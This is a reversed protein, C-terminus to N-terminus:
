GTRQMILFHSLGFIRLSTEELLYCIRRLWPALRAHRSAIGDFGPYVYRHVLPTAPLGAFLGEVDQRRYARAHPVLRQRLASPLYNVLPFVGFHYNGGWYIGHTEFPYLRNPCYIVLCGGVRTTRFAEAVTRRDDAVHELVEHLFIVDFVGDPFPLSEGEAVMLHPLTAAGRRVRQWDVDIGYVWPSFRIFQATYTGIGCGIDLIRKGKLDVYQAVLALRREQGFRWVYSPHGLTISKDAALSM